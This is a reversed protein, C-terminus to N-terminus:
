WYIGSLLRNVAEDKAEISIDKENPALGGWPNNESKWAKNTSQWLYSKASDSLGTLMNIAEEAEAQDFSENRKEPDKNQADAIDLAMQYLVYDAEDIGYPVGAEIKEKLKEGTKTGASIQYIKNEAEKIVESGASKWIASSSAKKLIRDYTRSSDPSLFRNQLDEVSEVGQDRKMRSEMASAIREETTQTSTKFLDRKVMDDYIIEYVEPDNKSASYLIDMFNKFNGSYNMNLMASDIRYQMLYDDMEIAATAIVSQVDRKLNAIPIGLLRSVEGMLNASAGALSHRGEGSLAKKMNAAAELVKSVPEMDMRSVDYGQMISLLDKFYPIYGAPNFNAELNGDWFSNWYDLFTEEEGTFGTYATLFKEWYDREKDDDRLADVISQMVANVAFSVVLAASTRALARKTDNRADKGTAHRLDYVANVFMNYTKTPEAMFSTAMKTLADPSRMIQSRQLLGDVVQTQDVIESFRTGVARYFADTGPKLDHRKDRMEAEVANWLRAWAFSDAKSAGAMAAQKVKEMKSDSSFLVDKMQRGTNIDFYGWDKWVAIPAYRKVKDWDGRKVTGSLLYKPDLSNMARLIATPQQLIVRINAAVAAAKYNGVLSDTFNGTGNARVGQNIDDVLKNLYANGNRGFVREIISKVDGTRSGKDDRFTFDRIRRINEMTPLWAAYTAMDNVHNSYTDFISEVMVANNAKPIVSKTFGRGAITTAQAEKSIDRRTQNKDVKIPYYDKETFKRYGYVAMSAENGLEALTGGMFKQLRDAIRIQEETLMGTIAALDEVSVKVPESRRDERLGRGSHITDPRIGGKLIHDQAQKRKMLEYLGMIQATSMTVDGGSLDFTHKERELKNIDTKGIIEATKKQAQRMITIHRDQAARMMRFLEEGTKGLRHFYSQPTLMDLNVLRDIKGAVGRYDGRDKRLINDARIGDAFSSITEFRSTGLMKNATRISAEVAKLAAWVTALQDTGMEAIPTNKMSELENLNDMLDPDIILTYDGGDKAIEAYALRLARFAETRKVPEGEGNKRRKGTEPDVTYVSELNIADLLSAVATRLNEPIHQKETPRLLKQSLAKAHRTIKRRLEAASRRERGAADRAQYHEKMRDLQRTRADRERQVARRVRERNEQRLTELRAANEERLQQVRQQGKAKAEQLKMAQRDAFTKRTQPLDFFTEMVENAAGTVAQEMYQSFPNYETIDYLTDAVEAIRLLQDTPHIEQQSNFFEPWLESLEEYVQDINSADGRTLNLRGFRQKRWAGYDPIEHSDAESVILRTTRLYNRLDSYQDYLETGAAVANDVLKRAIAEALRRAETYTLEDKGDYGSALYDYLSQLDGVIDETNLDANYARILERAAQEVAKKDTTVRNTRRTQGQWYDRSERLTGNQRLIDKYDRMQERLLQNEEYLAQIDAARLTSRNRLSFRAGEVSNVQQIRDADDGSRYELTRVGTKALADTLEKSSDDPVVAALVEDFSVAREPKAEFLNVPMQSVDFLLDRVKAALENGIQYSYEGNFKRMISDITYNGGDAIEVLIHGITDSQTYDYERAGGPSKEALEGTIEILREDLADSIAQQEAETLNQLRGELKHMDAISKFRQATGARLSKVGYFGSVNKTNGGNQGAMAKVIGELTVPYHTQQFSRRNGSPTFREKSNYVGSAAEIGSYLDLVWREYEARDLSEDVTRRTAASDTVTEYVPEGGQDRFYEQVQRLIGSMRFASKTMGPFAAELAEGHQERLEKLNMSGITDPDETGLADAIAQYKDAREPNYGKEVERQTTSPEIHTGQEELYAAKLGYNDMAWRALGEEGGHRNLYDDLGYQLRRLDDQFYPDVRASLEGIRRSIRREAQTDAEYEVQPFTPTWADASYVTNKRSAKPDVARKDMVLSIEGFNTHPIDTRTVAISPMPFGGLRLAGLLKSETLNHLAILTKTEEVPKKLSFRGNVDGGTKSISDNVSAPGRSRPGNQTNTTFAADTKKVKERINAPALNIIDYLLLGNQGRNGVIVQATYGNSGIRILVEGRAFDIIDDKRPHLLAENVWNRAARLIDDASNVARLKDAYMQPDLNFLRQMYKSFTMERRSQANINIVNNGVTVGNPFKQRLSDKVTKVWEKQPVGALIDEEIVVYPKNNQDYRISFRAAGDTQAASKQAEASTATRQRTEKVAADYASQWLKAAKELEAMSVGYQKRAESNQAATDGRFATKVRRIFDRIADLVKRAVSRNDQALDRFLKSDKVMAETFEAAVEDMAQETTLNIGSEAYRAKIEEVASRGIREAIKGNAYDRYKRYQEPALEQLRHTIEHSAVVMAPNEANAAIRITGDAAYYAGNGGHEVTDVIEIKTGLAKGLTNLYVAETQPIRATHDNQILGAEEGYVTAYQVQVREAALSAAADNQGALYAAQRQANNLATSYGTKVKDMDMGTVGAQYYASFGGYFSDADVSGDYIATLAESGREGLAVSVNGMQRVVGGRETSRATFAAPDEQWSRATQTVERGAEGAGAPGPRGAPIAENGRNARSDGTQAAGRERLVPGGAGGPDYGRAEHRGVLAEETRGYTDGGTQRGIPAATKGKRDAQGAVYAAESQAPTLSQPAPKEDGRMGASYSELFEASYADTDMEGDYLRRMSVSGNKGLTEAIYDVMAPDRAPNVKQAPQPGQTYVTYPNSSRPAVSVKDENVGGLRENAMDQALQYLIDIRTASPPIADAKRQAQEQIAAGARNIANSTLIQGGGLLGGVLAGGAFEEASRVPNFVANEDEASFWERSQDYISKRTLNDVIGQVVEEKGEDLMSSVWGRIANTSGSRIQAPLTELGGGVEVGSNIIGSILATTMAEIEGAGEAKAEDYAPGVMQLASTWFTPTRVMNNFATSITGVLGPAAQGLASSGQAAISGGGSMLALITNPLTQVTSVGLEGIFKGAEGSRDFVDQARSVYKDKESSYYRNLKSVPDNEEGFLLETPTFFDLTSFLAQNFSSLGGTGIAGLYEGASPRNMDKAYDRRAQAQKRIESPFSFPTGGMGYSIKESDSASPTIKFPAEFVDSEKKRKKREYQRVLDLEHGLASMEASIDGTREGSALKSTGYLKGSLDAMRQYATGVRDRSRAAREDQVDLKNVRTVNKHVKDWHEKRSSAWAEEKKRAISKQSDFWQKEKESLAM